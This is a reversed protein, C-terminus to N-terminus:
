GLQYFRAKKFPLLTGGGANNRTGEPYLFMSIGLEKAKKGADNIAKRSSESSGRNLFIAGSLM